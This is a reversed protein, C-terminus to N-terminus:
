KAGRQRAIRRLFENQSGSFDMVLDIEANTMHPNYKADRRGLRLIEQAREKSM